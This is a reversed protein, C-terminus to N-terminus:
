AALRLRRDRGIHTPEPKDPGGKGSRERLLALGITCVVLVGALALTVLQGGPWVIVGTPDAAVGLLSEVYAYM